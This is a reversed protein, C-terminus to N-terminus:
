GVRLNKELEDRISQFHYMDLIINPTLFRIEDYSDLKSIIDMLDRMNETWFEGYLNNSRNRIGMISSLYPDCNNILVNIVQNFKAYNQKEIELLVLFNGTKALNFQTYLTIVQEDILKQLRRNVTKTSIGTEKAIDMVSMRSDNKILRIIKIDNKTLPFKNVRYEGTKFLSPFITYVIDTESEILIDSDKVFDVYDTIEQINRLLGGIFMQNGSAQLIYETREDKGLIDIIDSISNSEIRGRVMVSIANIYSDSLYAKYGLIIGNEEMSKIRRHVAHISIGVSDAVAQYSIRPNAIIYKKIEIDTLDM